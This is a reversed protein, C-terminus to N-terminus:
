EEGNENDLCNEPLQKVVNQKNRKSAKEEQQSVKKEQRAERKQARKEANNAFKEQMKFTLKDAGSQIADSLHNATNKITHAIKESRQQKQAEVDQSLKDFKKQSLPIDKNTHLLNLPDLKNKLLEVDTLFSKKILDAYKEAVFYGIEMLVQMIWAILMLTTLIISFATMDMNATYIGYLIIGLSVARVFLRSCTYLRRIQKRVNKLENIKYRTCLEFITYVVLLGLLVCNVILNGSKTIIAYILYALTFVKFAYQFIDRLNKLSSLTKNIAAFTYDFM